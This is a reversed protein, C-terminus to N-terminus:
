VGAGGGASAVPLSAEAPAPAPRTLWLGVVVAAAALAGGILLRGPTTGTADARHETRERWTRPPAPRVLLGDPELDEPANAV